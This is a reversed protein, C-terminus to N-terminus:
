NHQGIINHIYKIYIDNALCYKECEKVYEFDASYLHPIWEFKKAIDMRIMFNLSDINNVAIENMRPIVGAINHRIKFISMGETKDMTKNAIEFYDPDITNDDDLFIAYDGSAIKLMENRQPNGFNGGAIRETSHFKFRADNTSNVIKEAELDFGDSCILHEFDQHNQVRVSDICRQLEHHRNYTPTIISIKMELKGERIQM